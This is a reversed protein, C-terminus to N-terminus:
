EKMIDKLRILNYEIRKRLDVNNMLHIKEVAAKVDEVPIDYRGSFDTYFSENINRIYTVFKRYDEERNRLNSCVIADLLFAM